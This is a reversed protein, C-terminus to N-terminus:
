WKYGCKPCENKTEINEDVEKENIKINEYDFIV